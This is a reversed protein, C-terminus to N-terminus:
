SVNQRLALTLAARQLEWDSFPAFEIGNEPFFAPCSSVSNKPTAPQGQQSFCEINKQRLCVTM